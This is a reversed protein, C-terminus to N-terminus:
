LAIKKRKVADDSQKSKYKERLINNCLLIFCLVWTKTKYDLSLKGKLSYNNVCNSKKKRRNKM